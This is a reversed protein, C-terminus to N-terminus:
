QMFADHLKFFREWPCRCSFLALRVVVAASRFLRENFRESTNTVSTVLEELLVFVKRQVFILSAVDFCYAIEVLWLVKSVRLRADDVQIELM